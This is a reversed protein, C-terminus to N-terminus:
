RPASRRLKTFPVLAPVSARYREYEIPFTARMLREEMRLKVLLAATIIILGLAARVTGSTLATGLVSLLLGTYIPHRVVGYPGSRILEHGQKLTVSGSWNRGLHVRAWVAFAIGAAVLAVGTWYLALSRPWLRQNIWPWPLRHSALLVGGSVLATVYPIRSSLPERQETTKTNAAAILWYLAWAVWLGTLLLRHFSPDPHM